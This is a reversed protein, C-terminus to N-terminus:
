GKDSFIQQLGEALRRCDPLTRISIRIYEPLGFSACDRVVLGHKLLQTRISAADGVRVLIFNAGSPIAKLDLRDIETELYAKAAAIEERGKRVHDDDDLAAMGAAQAVANVSWFPQLVKIREIIATPALAYGLRLGALAHDKTMSHLVIVNGADLLPTSDWPREVFPVYAEDLVLPAPSSASAIKEIDNRDLYVGTPNNPNCLFVLAPKIGDIQRCVDDIDLRFRAEQTSRIFTPEAGNLRCAFEYEGYTPSIIAAPGNDIYSRVILHILETSGNGVIINGIDTNCRQALAERLSLCDPDPYCSADAGAMASKVKPSVGLPNINSSFDIVDEPRMGLARLEAPTISGHVPRQISKGTENTM